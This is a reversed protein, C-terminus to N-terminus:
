CDSNKRIELSIEFFAFTMKCDTEVIRVTRLPETHHRDLTRPRDFIDYIEDLLIIECALASYAKFICHKGTDVIRLGVSISKESHQFTQFASHIEYAEMLYRIKWVLCRRARNNLIELLAQVVQTYCGSYSSGPTLIDKSGASHQGTLM